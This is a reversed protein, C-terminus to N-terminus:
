QLFITNSTSPIAVVVETHEVVLKPDKSTGTESSNFVQINQLESSAWTLGTITVDFLWGYPAHNFNIHYFM